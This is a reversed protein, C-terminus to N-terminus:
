EDTKRRRPMREEVTIAFDPCHIECFRCGNCKDTDLIEPKGTKDATIIKKPCFAVCLGCTKCWAHFFSVDYFKKKKGSSTSNKKETESSLVTNKKQDPM